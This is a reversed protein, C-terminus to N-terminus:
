LTREFQGTEEQNIRFYTSLDIPCKVGKPIYVFSGDTFVAANLAAFFNDRYPVVTGLYKKILEAHEHIAESISCFVVGYKALLEKHTTAVSVSDFVADIAVGSIRQQESLPIGLKEFTRILEPDLDNLSEVAGGSQAEAGILNKKPASYYSIDQYNIKPYKVMAWSPEQLTQWYAFAQLRYELLWGPENKKKSIERITSENLGKPLSESEIDSVFGYKYETM